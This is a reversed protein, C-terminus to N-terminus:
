KDGMEGSFEQPTMAVSHKKVERLLKKDFTILPVRYSLCTAALISDSTKLSVNRYENRYHTVIFHIDLPLHIFTEENTFFDLIQKELHRFGNRHLINLVECIILSPLIISIKTKILFDFFESSEKHHVDTVTFAALFVSSDIIIQNYM